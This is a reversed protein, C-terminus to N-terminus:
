LRARRPQPDFTFTNDLPIHPNALLWNIMKDNTSCNGWYLMNRLVFDM